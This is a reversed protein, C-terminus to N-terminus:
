SRHAVLHEEARARLGIALIACTAISTSCLAPTPRAGIILSLDGLIAPLQAISTTLFLAELDAREIATEPALTTDRRWRELSTRFRKPYWRYGVIGGVLPFPLVCWAFPTVHETLFARVDDPQGGFFFHRLLFDLALMTPGTLAFVVVVLTRLHRRAIAM